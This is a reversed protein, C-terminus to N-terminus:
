RDGVQLIPCASPAVGHAGTLISPSILWGAGPAADACSTSRSWWRGAHSGRCGWGTVGGEGGDGGGLPAEMEGSTQALGLHHSLERTPVEQWCCLLGLSWRCDFPYLLQPVCVARNLISLWCPGVTYCLSSREINHPLRSSFPTQLLISAHIHITSSSQQEDLAVM